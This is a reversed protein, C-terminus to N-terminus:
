LKGLVQRILVAIDTKTLPKLTFGKIGLAKAKTESILSSYGTCLIIPIDPRIQLLRRSLDTGTMAPMTQDCLVLDFKKPENQFTTLAELSSMRTTVRYGLRELMMKGMELLIEEDDM